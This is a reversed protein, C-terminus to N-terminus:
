LDHDRCLQLHKANNIAQRKGDDGLFMGVNVLNHCKPCGVTFVPKEYAEEEPSPGPPVSKFSVAIENVSFSFRTRCFTCVHVCGEEIIRAM